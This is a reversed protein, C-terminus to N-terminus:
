NLFNPTCVIVIVIEPNNIIEEPSLNPIQFDSPLHSESIAVVEGPSIEKIADYRIKGMKGYGIIGVNHM